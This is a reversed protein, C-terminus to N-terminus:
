EEEIKNKQFHLDSLMTNLTLKESKVKRKARELVYSPLGIKEAVEFTYSSGPQGVLLQYKAQLTEPDFLMSGNIVGELEDALLKINTYHTTFIGFAKKKNLEELVVEAIAGGLEPDTGTGFEDILVLSRNNATEIFTKMSILRSSYTSLAYEISQSDGIDALFQNFFCM